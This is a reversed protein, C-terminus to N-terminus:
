LDHSPVAPAQPPTALFHKDNDKSSGQNKVSISLCDQPNSFGLPPWLIKPGQMTAPSEATVEPKPGVGSSSTHTQLQCKCPQQTSAATAQLPTLSAEWLNPQREMQRSSFLLFCFYLFSPSAIFFPGQVSVVLLLSSLVVKIGEHSNM